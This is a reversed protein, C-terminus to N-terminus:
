AWHGPRNPASTPKLRGAQLAAVAERGTIQDALYVTVGGAELVRFAKPGVNGTILATAGAGAVTQGAQIGAGQAAQMNQQNPIVRTQETETDYILFSAARGFRPDLPADLNAGSCTIAIKM